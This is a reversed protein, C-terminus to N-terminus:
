PVSGRLVTAAGEEPDAGRLSLWALDHRVAYDSLTRADQESLESGDALVLTLAVRRWADEEDPLSQARAIQAEALRVAAALRSLRGSPATRPELGALLNVTGVEAGARHAARLAAVCSAGLGSATLPATFSVQLEREQQLVRLARARRAATAASEGEAPLEFDVASVDFAGVVRRYAAALARPETCRAAPDAGGAGAGGSGDGDGSGGGFSTAADGGLARLRGIRNAVQNVGPDILIGGASAWAPSCGDAGGAVLHGLLYHLVGTRLATAPLDFAPDAATDVYGVFGPGVTAPGVLGPRMFGPPPAEAVAASLAPTHLGLPAARSAPPAPPPSTAVASAPPLLRVAVVTAAVLALGALVALPRPLLGPERQHRPM